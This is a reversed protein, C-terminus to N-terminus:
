TKIESYRELQESAEILLGIDIENVEEGTGIDRLLMITLRGGLHERFETLGTLIDSGKEIQLFPHTIEFGL